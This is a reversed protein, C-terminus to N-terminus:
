RQLPVIQVHEIQGTVGSVRDSARSVLALSQTPCDAPVSFQGSFVTAAQGSNVEVRALEAGGNCSVTWYPRSREPQDIGRSRGELRYNGPPLMQTQSVVRARTSAPIAFDLLGGDGDQLIAASLGTATGVNWDFPAAAEVGGFNPGRSRSREVGPRFTEYYAWAEDMLDAAVLRTVVLTREADEIPLGRGAGERFLEAVAAPDSGSRAAASIFEKGWGPNQALMDVVRSRIAPETVASALIPFLIQRARSSTSLALDYNRLALDIDGQAVAEEIAWLQPQLERRSLAVSYGFLRDAIDEESRLQGQLGLVNLAEIATADYQLAKRALRAQDSDQGAQPTIAFGQAAAAAMIRGDDPALAHAARADAQVVVNALTGALSTYGVVLASVALVGRVVWGRGSRRTSRHGSSRQGTEARPKPM